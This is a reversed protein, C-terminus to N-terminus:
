KKIKRVQQVFGLLIAFVLGALCCEVDYTIFFKVILTVATVIMCIGAILILALLLMQLSNLDNKKM